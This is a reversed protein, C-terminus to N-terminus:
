GHRIAKRPEKSLQPSSVKKVVPFSHVYTLVTSGFSFLGLTLFIYVADDTTGGAEETSKKKVKM